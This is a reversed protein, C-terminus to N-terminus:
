MPAIHELDSKTVAINQFVNIKGPSVLVVIWPGCLLIANRVNNADTCGSFIPSQALTPMLNAWPRRCQVLIPEVGRPPQARLILQLDFLLGMIVPSRQSVNYKVGAFVPRQVLASKINPWRRLRHVLM